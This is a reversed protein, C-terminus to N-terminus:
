LNVKRFLIRVHGNGTFTFINVGNQLRLGYPKNDGANLNYNKNNYTLVMNSSCNIIPTVLLKPNYVNITKSATIDYDSCQLYDENFNFTDWLTNTAYDIGNKFPEAIFKIILKGFNMVEEFTSSEEVEVMYYYDKSDDFILKHKGNVNIIWELIKSYNMSLREKNNNDFGIEINIEREDYVVEGNSGITSFDYSGNMFPVSEKIKKKSPPQISKSHMFVGMESNHKGNFTFGRLSYILPNVM